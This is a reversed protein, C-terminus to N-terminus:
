ILLFMMKLNIFNFKVFHILKTFVYKYHKYNKVSVEHTLLM